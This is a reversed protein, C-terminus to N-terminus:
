NIPIEYIYYIDKDEEIINLLKFSKVYDIAPYGLHLETKYLESFVAYHLDFKAISLNVQQRALLNDPEHPIVVVRKDTLYAMSYAILGEVLIGNHPLSNLYTATVKGQTNCNLTFIIHRNVWLFGGLAGLFLFYVWQLSVIPCGKALFYGILPIAVISNRPLFRKYLSPYLLCLTIVSLYWKSQLMGVITLLCMIFTMISLLINLRRNKVQYLGFIGGIKKFWNKFDYGLERKGYYSYTYPFYMPSILQKWTFNWVPEIKGDLGSPYYDNMSYVSAKECLWSTYFLLFISLTFINHGIFFWVWFVRLSAFGCTLALLGWAIGGLLAHKTLLLFLIATGLLVVLQYRFIRNSYYILTYNFSIFGLAILKQYPNLGLYDYLQNCVWYLGISCLLSITIGAKYDKMFRSFQRILWSYLPPHTDYFSNNWMRYFTKATKLHRAEDGWILLEKNPTFLRLILYIIFM